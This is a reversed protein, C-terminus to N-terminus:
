RDSRLKEASADSGSVHIVNGTCLHEYTDLESIDEDQWEVQLARAIAEKKSDAEVELYITGAIPLSVGYKAM